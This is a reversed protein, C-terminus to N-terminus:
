RIPIHHCADALRVEWDQSCPHSFVLELSSRIIVRMTVDTCIEQESQRWHYCHFISYRLFSQLFELVHTVWNSSRDSTMVPWLKSSTLNDGTAVPPLCSTSMYLAAIYQPRSRIWSCISLNGGVSSLHLSRATWFLIHISRCHEFDLSLDQM